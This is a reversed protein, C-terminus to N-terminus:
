LDGGMAKRADRPSRWTAMVNEIDTADRNQEALEATTEDTRSHWNLLIAVVRRYNDDIADVSWVIAQMDSRWGSLVTAIVVLSVAYLAIVGGILWEMKRRRM